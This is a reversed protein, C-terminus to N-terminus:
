LEGSEKLATEALEALELLSSAYIMPNGEFPCIEGFREYSRRADLVAHLADVMLQHGIVVSM